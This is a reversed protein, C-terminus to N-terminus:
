DKYVDNIATKKVGTIEGGRKEDFQEITRAGADEYGTAEIIYTETIAKGAKQSGDEELTTPVVKLKVEYYSM